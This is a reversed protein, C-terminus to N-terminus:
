TKLNGKTSKLLSIYNVYLTINIKKYKSVLVLVGFIKLAEIVEGVGITRFSYISYLTFNAKIVLFMFSM